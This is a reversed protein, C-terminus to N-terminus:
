DRSSRYTDADLRAPNGTSRRTVSEQWVGLWVELSVRRINRAMNRIIRRAMSRSIMSRNISRSAMSRDISKNVGKWTNIHQLSVTMRLHVKLHRDIGCGLLTCSKRFATPASSLYMGIMSVRERILINCLFQWTFSLKWIAVLATVWSM